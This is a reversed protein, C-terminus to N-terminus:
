AAFRNRKEAIRELRFPVVAQWGVVQLQVAFAQAGPQLDQQQHHHCGERGQGDGVVAGPPRLGDGAGLGLCQAQRVRHGPLLRHQDGLGPMDRVRQDAFARAQRQLLTHLVRPQYLLGMGPDGVDIQHSRIALGETGGGRWGELAKAVAVIELGQDLGALRGDAIEQDAAGRALRHHHHRLHLCGGLAADGPHGAGGDAQLPQLVHAPLQHLRPVGHEQRHVAMTMNQRAIRLGTGLHSIALRARGQDAGHQGRRVAVGVRYIQMAHAPQEADGAHPLGTGAHGDAQGLGIHQGGGVDIEATVQHHNQGDGQQGEGHTHRPQLQRDQAPQAGQAVRRLADGGAVAGDVDVAGAAPRFQLGHGLGEIGHSVGDGPLLLFQHRPLLTEAVQRLHRGVPVPFRVLSVAQGVDGVPHLEHADVHGLQQAAGPALQRGIGVGGVPHDVLTEEVCAGGEAVEGIGDGPRIALDPVHFDGAPGIVRGLAAKATKASHSAIDRGQHLRALVQLFAVPQQGGDQFGDVLADDGEVGLQAQGDAVAM